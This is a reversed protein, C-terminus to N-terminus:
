GPEFPVDDKNGTGQTDGDLNSSNGHDTANKEPGRSGSATNIGTENANVDETNSM